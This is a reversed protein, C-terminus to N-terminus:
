VAFGEGTILKSDYTGWHIWWIDPVMLSKRPRESCPLHIWHPVIHFQKATKTNSTRAALVLRTELDM